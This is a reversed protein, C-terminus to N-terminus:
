STTIIRAASCKCLLLRVSGVSFDVKLINKIYMKLGTTISMDYVNMNSDTKLVTKCYMFINTYHITFYSTDM